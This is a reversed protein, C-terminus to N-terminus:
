INIKQITVMGHLQPMGGFFESVGQQSLATFTNQSAPYPANVSSVSIGYIHPVTKSSNKDVASKVSLTAWVWNKTQKSYLQVPILDLEGGWSFPSSVTHQLIPTLSANSAPIVLTYVTNLVKGSPDEGWTISPTIETSASNIVITNGYCPVIRISPQLSLTEKLNQGDWQYFSKTKEAYYLKHKYIEAGESGSNQYDEYTFTGNSDVFTPYITPNLVSIDSCAAFIKHESFYYIESTSNISTGSSAFTVNGANSVEGFKLIQSNVLLDGNGVLSQGNITKVEQIATDAKGLSKRITDKLDGIPIGDSPKIYTGTNKTFGWNSITSETVANPITPKNSLDNYDGSTAVTSLNEVQQLAAIGSLSNNRIAVLDQIIDQKTSVKNANTRISDIDDIIDQKSSLDSKTAYNKSSLETETVYETPIFQVATSGMRANARISDLDAIVDQKSALQTTTAFNMAQLEEETIYESPIEQLATAGLGAGRKIKALDEILPQKLDLQNQISAIIGQLSQTDEIGNLFTIIENFSNIAATTNGNMLRDLNNQLQQLNSSLETDDYNSLNDLKQKLATTFDETSLQKGSIKDVKNDLDSLEAYGDLTPIDSTKAYGDLSPIKIEAVKENVYTETAYGTLDVKGDTAAKVIESSVWSETAYGELSPIDETKAYGQTEVWDRSALHSIDQHETLFGKDNLETKTVYDDPIELGPVDSLTIFGSDNTLESTKTPVAVEPVEDITIFKSDNELESLRTPVTPIEAKTALHSIDQHEKIFGQENVWQETAYGDLSDSGGAVAEAIKTSVWTEKALGELESKLALNSIDQHNTLYNKSTVWDQTAYNKAELESETVYELLDSPPTSLAIEIDGEGLISEGNITKITQGSVLSDQKKNIQQQVNEGTVVDIVAETVTIPYATKNKHKLNIKNM